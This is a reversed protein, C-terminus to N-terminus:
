KVWSPCPSTAKIGYHAPITSSIRSGDKSPVSATREEIKKLELTVNFFERGGLPLKRRTTIYTNIFEKSLGVVAAADSKTFEYGEVLSAAEQQSIKTTSAVVGSIMKRFSESPCYDDIKGSKDYIGVKFTPDNLMARMVNVEDKRNSSVVKDPNSSDTVTKRINNIVIDASNNNM